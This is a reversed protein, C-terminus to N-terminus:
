NDQAGVSVNIQLIGNGTTQSGMSKSIIHPNVPLGGEKFPSSTGYIGIDTGDNGANKGVSTSLLHYDSSYSYAGSTANTYLDAATANSINNSFTCGTCYPIGNIVRVVNNSVILNTCGYFDGSSGSALIINNQFEAGNVSCVCYPNGGPGDIINNRFIVGVSMGTGITCSYAPSGLFSKEVLSNTFGPSSYLQTIICESITINACQATINGTRGIDLIAIRCRRIVFNNVAAPNAQSQFELYPATFQVGEISGGSAGSVISTTDSIMTTNLVGAYNPNYGTGYIHVAKDIIFNLVGPSFQINGGPLYINDGNAANTMAVDLYQYYSSTGNHELAILRQSSVPSLAFVGILLLLLQKM